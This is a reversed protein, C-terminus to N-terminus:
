HGNAARATFIEIGRADLLERLREAYRRGAPDGDEIVIVCEIYPPIHQAIGPLRGATGAAWAGVKTEQHYTLANEIGEAVCITMGDNPPALVIPLNHGVGLTLKSVGDANVAKGSGDPRILTCHVGALRMPPLRILGPEHEDPLGFAALLAPHRGASIPPLFRLTGPLRCTIGRGELYRAAITGTADGARLWMRLAKRKQEKTYASAELERQQRMAEAKALADAHRREREARQQPTEPRRKDLPEEGLVDRVFAAASIHDHAVGMAQVLDLLDGRGCTCFWRERRDDWRFSPNRDAHRGLPCRMHGRRPPAIGLAALVAGARGTALALTQSIAGTMHAV